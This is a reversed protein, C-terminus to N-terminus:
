PGFHLTLNKVRESSSYRGQTANRAGDGVPRVEEGLRSGNSKSPGLFANRSRVRNHGKESEIMNESNPDLM